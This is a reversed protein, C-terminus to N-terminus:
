VPPKNMLPQEQKVSSPTIDGVASDADMSDIQSYLCHANGLQILRVNDTIAMPSPFSQEDDSADGENIAM